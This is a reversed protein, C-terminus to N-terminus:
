LEYISKIERVKGTQIDKESKIIKSMTKKNSLIAITEIASALEQKTVMNEQIKRLEEQILSINTTEM